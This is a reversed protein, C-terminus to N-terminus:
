RRTGGRPRRSPSGAPATARSGSCASSPPRGFGRPSRSSSSRSSPWRTRALRDDPSPQAMGIAERMVTLLELPIGTRDSVQQFTEAALSAFRDYSAADNWVSCVSSRQRGFGEAVQVELFPVITMEDERLHDDPSPEAMGIAERIVTLPQLPIGTRDSVQQFTEAALGAFREYGAADFFSFSLTGHRMAAAVDGLPIGADELSRSMLVRRIAGVQLSRARRSASASVWWDFSM